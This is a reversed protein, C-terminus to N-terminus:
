VSYSPVARIKIPTSLRSTKAGKKKSYSKTARKKDVTPELYEIVKFQGVEKWYTLAPEFLDLNLLDNKLDTM